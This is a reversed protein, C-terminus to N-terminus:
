IGEGIWAPGRNATPAKVKSEDIVPNGAADWSLVGDEELRTFTEQSLWGEFRHGRHWTFLVLEGHQTLGMDMGEGSQRPVPNLPTKFQAVPEQIALIPAKSRRPM